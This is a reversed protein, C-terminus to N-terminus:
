LSQSEYSTSQRHAVLYFTLTPILPMLYNAGEWHAFNGQHFTFLSAIALIGLSSGLTFLTVQYAFYPKASRKIILYAGLISVISLAMPRWYGTLLVDGKGFLHLPTYHEQDWLLFIGHFCVTFLAGLTAVVLGHYKSRQFLIFGYMLPVFAFVTRTAGLIGCLLGVLIVDKLSKSSSCLETTLLVLLGLVILDLGVALHDWFLLGTSLYAVFDVAAQHGTRQQVFYTTLVLAILTTLPYWGSIISPLFLFLMGPAPSAPNGFYTRQLYPFEGRLLAQGCIMVADDQDSGRMVEKLGDAYPYVVIVAFFATITAISLVLWRRELLQQWWRPNFGLIWSLIGLYGLSMLTAFEAGFKFLDRQGTLWLVLLLCLIPLKDKVLNM